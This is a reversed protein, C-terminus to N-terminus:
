GVAAAAGDVEAVVALVGLLALPDHGLNTPTEKTKSM